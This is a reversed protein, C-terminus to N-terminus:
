QLLSLGYFLYQLAYFAKKVLSLVYQESMCDGVCMFLASCRNFENLDKEIVNEISNGYSKILSDPRKERLFEEVSHVKSQQIYKMGHLHRGINEPQM